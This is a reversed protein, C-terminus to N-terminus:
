YPEFEIKHRKLVLRAFDKWQADPAWVATVNEYAADPSVGEHVVRYLFTFVSARRNIQCHVFVRRTGAHGLIDSFIAFDDYTPRHWDVPINVYHWPATERRERRIEDAWNVVEADSINAGDLLEM